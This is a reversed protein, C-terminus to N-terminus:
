AKLASSAYRGAAISLWNTDTGVQTPSSRTQPASNGADGLGLRGYGNRGWSWLQGTTTIGHSNNNGVSVSSWTTLAGVQVPSSRTSTDDLGLQGYSNSGWGWM